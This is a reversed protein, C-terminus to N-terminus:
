VTHPVHVYYVPWVQSVIAHYGERIWKEKDSLTQSLEVCKVSLSPFIDHICSIYM